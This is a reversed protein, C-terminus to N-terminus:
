KSDCRGAMVQDGMTTFAAYMEEEVPKIQDEPLLFGYRGQDRLEPAYSCPIEAADYAWDATSGSAVYIVTSIDGYVFRKRHVEYIADCIEKSMDMLKDHSECKAEKYGYPFMWYQSYAHVDAYAAPRPNLAMLWDSAAKTEVESFVSKGYYTQSCPNNSAGPGSWNADWNRNPDVGICASPTDPNTTKRWMRDVDHSRVYGDPNTNISIYWTLDSTYKADEGGARAEEVLRRTFNIMTIPSIWERAHTGGHLVITKPGSGIKMINLDRGELSTGFSEVSILDSNAAAFDKQWAQYTEFTGYKEYNFDDLGTYAPQVSEMNEDIALGLDEIMTEYEVGAANLIAKFAGLRNISVAVDMYDGEFKPDKWMDEGATARELVAAINENVNQIRLVKDGYYQNATAFLPLSALVKM